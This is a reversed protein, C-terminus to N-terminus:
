SETWNTRHTSLIQRLKGLGQRIHTKVTGLPKHLRVAIEKHTLGEFYALELAAQQVDSLERLAMGVLERHEISAAIQAPDSQVQRRRFSEDKTQGARSERNSRGTDSRILDIARSRALTILYTRASGRSPNFRDAKEWTELFVDSMVAQADSPRRTIRLCVAYLTPSLRDYLAEFAQEDREAVLCFLDEDSREDVNIKLPAEVGPM